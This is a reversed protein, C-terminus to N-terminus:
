DKKPIIIPQTSDGSEADLNIGTNENATTSNEIATDYEDTTCSTTVTSLSVVMGIFFLAKKM